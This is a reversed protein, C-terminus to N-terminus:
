RPTARPACQHSAVHEEQERALPLCPQTLAFAAARWALLERGSSSSPFSRDLLVLGSERGAVLIYSLSGLPAVPPM